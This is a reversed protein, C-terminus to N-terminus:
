AGQMLVTKVNMSVNSDDVPNNNDYQFRNYRDKPVLEIYQSLAIGAGVVASYFNGLPQGMGADPWNVDDRSSQVRIDLNYGDAPAGEPNVLTLQARLVVAQPNTNAGIDFSSGNNNVSAQALNLATDVLTWADTIQQGYEVAM